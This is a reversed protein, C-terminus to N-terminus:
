LDRLMGMCLVWEIDIAPRPLNRSWSGAAPNHLLVSSCGRHWNDIIHIIYVYQLDRLKGMSFEWVIDLYMKKKM